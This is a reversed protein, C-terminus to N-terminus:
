NTGQPPNPNEEDEVREIECHWAMLPRNPM